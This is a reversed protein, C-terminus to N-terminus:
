RDHYKKNKGSKFIIMIVFGAPIVLGIVIATRIINENMTSNTNDSQKQTSDSNSDDSPDNVLKEPIFTDYEMTPKNTRVSRIYGYYQNYKVYYWLDNDDQPYEGIFTFSDSVPISIINESSLLPTKKLFISDFEYYDDNITLVESTGKATTHYGVVSAISRNIMGSVGNFSIYYYNEDMNLIKAYYSHPLVFLKIGNENLLWINDIIIIHPMDLANAISPNFLM